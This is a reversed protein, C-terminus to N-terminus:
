EHRVCDTHPATLALSSAVQSPSLLPLKSPLSVESQQQINIIPKELYILTAETTKLRKIDNVKELVETNQEM